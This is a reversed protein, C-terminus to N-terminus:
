FLKAPKFGVANLLGAIAADRTSAEVFTRSTDDTKKLDLPRGASYPYAVWGKKNSKREIYLKM